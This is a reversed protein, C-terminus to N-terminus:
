KNKKEFEKMFDVLFAVGEMPVGNYISARMGGVSRHGKINAIGRDTAEAIFAANLEDTPLVFPINTISRDEVRVTGSFLDSEDITNYLLEAKARNIREVEALGGMNMLEECVLGLMYIGFTPPTNFLSDKEAHTQYNFMTPVSSDAMGLLEERVIVVTVGAPGMNKQAGAYILDYQNVDVERSLISSSMDTVIRADTEPVSYFTTGYITNNETFHLYKAGPTCDSKTIKPIYSFNEDESSAIVQAYRLKQGEKIAMTSWRGTNIYDATEGEALLNLPVMAFQSSAGGQLFLVKYSDPINMLSRLNAEATTIIETFSKSRHSMEMVSMGAGPYEVMQEQAKKLVNIPLASPGASFNWVRAM